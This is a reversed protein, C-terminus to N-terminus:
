DSIWMTATSYAEGFRLACADVISVYTAAGANDVLRARLEDAAKTRRELVKVLLSASKQTEFETDGSKARFTTDLSLMYNEIVQLAAVEVVIQILERDLDVDVPPVPKIEASNPDVRYDTFYGQLKANWFGREVYSLWAQASATVLPAGPLSVAAQLPEVLDDLPIAM